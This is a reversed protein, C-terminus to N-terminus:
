DQAGNDGAAKGVVRVAEGDYVMAAGTTIVQEGAKLGRVAVQNGYVPGLQVDRRRAVAKGNEESIVMVAYGDPQDSSHLLSEGAVLIGGSGTYASSGDSIGPLDLTAIMGVKLRQQPNPVTVEVNFVRTRSDAAPSIATIRGDLASQSLVDVHVPVRQGLRLTQVQVDPVGFVVKMRSVDALTFALTGPQVLTGIEIHRDLIVGSTPARLGTDSFPIRASTLQALAGRGQAQAQQVQAQATKLGSKAARVRAQAEAVQAQRTKDQALAEAIKTQAATLQTQAQELKNQAAQIQSTAEKRRAQAQQVQQVAQQRKAQSADYNARAADYDTKTLSESKYLAEARTYDQHARTLGAQAEAVGAQAQGVSAQAEDRQQEAQQQAIRAAEIQQEAQQSAARAEEVQAQSAQQGAQAEQWGAAAQEEAAQAQAQGSLAQAVGAQMQAQQAQAQQVRAAYDSQRVQALLTGARVFDGQQLLHMRGDHARVQLIQEVYGGEKFAIDVQTNATVSGTYRSLGAQGAQVEQAVSVNVPTLANPTAEQHHCGAM